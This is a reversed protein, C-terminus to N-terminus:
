TRYRGFATALRTGGNGRRGVMSAHNDVKGRKALSLNAYRSINFALGFAASIFVLSTGGLSLFPLTIGTLPIVGLMAGINILVHSALWGFVGATLLRMYDNPASELIKLLRVALAGFLFLVLLSGVFGFQEAVIAFISDNIAEPLYGFVQVSKGLGRGFWGGSGIAILAQNIHYSAGDVDRTPDFFTLLRAVRHPFLLTGAVAASLIVGVFRSYLGLRIGSVFLMSLIIGVIAVMTGLDKQLIAILLGIAGTIILLPWVTERSSDLRNTRMREALWAALYIVTAFKLFEAPQFSLIGIDLWRTAGNVELSIGPILLLLSTGIAAILLPAHVKRWFEIPLKSAALFAVGALGIHSLQRYLLSSQELAPSITYALVTGLLLLLGTVMLLTYDPKHRRLYGDTAMRSTRLM